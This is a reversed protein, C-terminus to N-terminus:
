VFVTSNCRYSGVRISGIRNWKKAVAHAHVIRTTFTTTFTTTFLGFTLLGEDEDDTLAARANANKPSVVSTLLTTVGIWGVMWGDMWRVFRDFSDRISRSTLHRTLRANPSFVRSTPFARSDGEGNKQTSKKFQSGDFPHPTKKKPKKTPV